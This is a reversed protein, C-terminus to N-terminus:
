SLPLSLFRDAASAAAAQHRTLVPWQANFHFLLPCDGHIFAM